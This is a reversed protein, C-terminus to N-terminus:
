KVTVRFAYSGIPELDPGLGSVEFV